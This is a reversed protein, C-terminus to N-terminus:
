GLYLFKLNKSPFKLTYLIQNNNFTDEFSNSNMPSKIIIKNTINKYLYDILKIASIQENNNNFSTDLWVFNFDFNNYKSNYNNGWPPDFYIVDPKFNFRDQLLLMCNINLININTSHYASINSQLINYTLLNIETVIVNFYKSFEISDSGIGGFMDWIITNKRATYFFDALRTLQTSILFPTIYYLKERNYRWIKARTGFLVKLVNDNRNKSTNKHM